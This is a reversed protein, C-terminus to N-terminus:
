RCGCEKLAKPIVDRRIRASEDLYEDMEHGFDSGVPSRSETVKTLYDRKGKEYQSEALQLDYVMQEYDCANASRAAGELRIFADRFFKLQSLDRTDRHVLVRM